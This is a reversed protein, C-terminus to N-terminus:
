RKRGEIEIKKISDYDECNERKLGLSSLTTDNKFIAKVIRRYSPVKGLTELNPDASDPIGSSYGKRQQDVIYNNIKKLLVADKITKKRQKAM